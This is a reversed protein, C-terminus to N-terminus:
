QLLELGSDLLTQLQSLLAFLALCIDAAHMDAAHSSAARLSVPRLAVALSRVQFLFPDLMELVTDFGILRLFM